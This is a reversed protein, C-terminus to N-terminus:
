FVPVIFSVVSSPKGIQRYLPLHTEPDKVTGGDPITNLPSLPYAIAYLRQYQRFDQAILTPGSIILVSRLSDTFILKDTVYLYRGPECSVTAATDLFLLAQVKPFFATPISSITAECRVSGQSTDSIVIFETLQAPEQVLTIPPIHVTGNGAFVYDIIEASCYNDKSFVIRHLGPPVNNLIWSGDAASLTEVGAASIKVGARDAVFPADERVLYVIGKLVGPATATANPGPEGECGSLIAALIILIIIVKM